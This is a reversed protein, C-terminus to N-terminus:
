FKCYCPSRNRTITCYTIVLTSCCGALLLFCVHSQCKCSLLYGNLFVDLNMEEYVQVESGFFLASSTKRVVFWRSNYLNEYRTYFHLSIVVEWPM